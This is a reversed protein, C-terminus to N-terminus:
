SMGSSFILFGLFSEIAFAFPSTKFNDAASISSNVEAGSDKGTVEGARRGIGLGDRAGDGTKSLCPEAESVWPESESSRTPPPRILLM